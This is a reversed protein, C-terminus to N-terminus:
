VYPTTPLTLHTYSVPGRITPTSQLFDDHIYYDPRDFPLEDASGNAHFPVTGQDDLDACVTINNIGLSSEQETVIRALTNDIETLTDDQASRTLAVNLNQHKYSIDSGLKDTTIMFLLNGLISGQPRGGHVPRAVSLSDNVRVKM